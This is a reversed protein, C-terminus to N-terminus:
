WSGIASTDAAQGMFSQRTSGGRAKRLKATAASRLAADAIDPKLAVAALEEEAKAAEKDSNKAGSQLGSAMEKGTEQLKNITKRKWAETEGSFAAGAGEFADSLFGM